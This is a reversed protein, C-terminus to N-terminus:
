AAGVQALADRLTEEDTPVSDRWVVRGAADIIVTTDLSRVGLAQALSGDGDHVFGYRAGAQEAFDRITTLSDTPDASVGLIDVRDGVDARIAELAAAEPVCTACWSAMFFLVAPKGAPLAFATCATTRAEFAPAVDGVASGGASILEIRTTVDQPGSAAPTDSGGRASALVVVVALAAIGAVVMWFRRRGAPQGAPRSRRSPGVGRSTPPRTRTRPSAM